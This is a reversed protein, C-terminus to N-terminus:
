ELQSGDFQRFGNIFTAADMSKKGELQLETVHLSGKGTGIYIEGEQIRVIGPVIDDTHSAIGLLKLRKGHWTCWIGPWPTMGQFQHYITEAPKSWDIKGDERNLVTCYTAEKEDQISAKITGDIYGAVAKSLLPISIEALKTELTTFTDQKTIPLSEQLLTPGTDMGADMVMITSGTVRDGHILAAQIPTAGRYQPLLSGHVNIMGHTPSSLLRQPIIRGYQAVIAIVSEPLVIDKLTEPQLTPIGYTEAVLKVPSKKIEQHRGIPRDPQTVVLIIDFLPNDKMGKLLTAAFQETGFFITTLPM